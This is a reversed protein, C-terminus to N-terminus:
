YFVDVSVLGIGVGFYLQIVGDLNFDYYGNIFVGINSIDGQGDVVVVVVLVGFFMFLGVIVVVDVVDISGGGFMVDMYIDVDVELFVLEVGVCWGGQFCVGFEVVFVIGSDFEINWGYLMGVVVDLIIGDGFNGIM